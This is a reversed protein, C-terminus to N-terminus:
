PSRYSEDLRMLTREGPKVNHHWVCWDLAGVGAEEVKRLGEGKCGSDLCWALSGSHAARSRETADGRNEVDECVRGLHLDSHTM